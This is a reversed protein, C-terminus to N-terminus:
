RYRDAAEARIAGWPVSAARDADAAGIRRDLEEAEDRDLSEWLAEILELRERPSLRDIEIPPM